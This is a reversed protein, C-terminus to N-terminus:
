AIFADILKCMLGSVNLNQLRLNYVGPVTESRVTMALVQYCPNCVGKLVQTCCICHKSINHVALCSAICVSM